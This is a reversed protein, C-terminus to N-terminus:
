SSSVRIKTSPLDGGTAKEDEPEHEVNADDVNGYIKNTLKDGQSEARSSSAMRSVISVEPEFMVRRTSMDNPVCQVQSPKNHRRPSRANQGLPSPVQHGFLGFSNPGPPSGGSLQPVAPSNSVFLSAESEGGEPDEHM